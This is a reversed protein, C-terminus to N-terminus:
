AVSDFDASSAYKSRCATCHDAPTVARLLATPGSAASLSEEWSNLCLTGSTRLRCQSGCNNIMKIFNSKTISVLLLTMCPLMM